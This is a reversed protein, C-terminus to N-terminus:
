MSRFSNSMTVGRIAPYQLWENRLNDIKTQLERDRIDITIVGEKDYGLDKHRMFQLQQYIVISGIILVISAFYQMIVLSRQLTSSSLKSAGATGPVGKLVEVPRLSSMILAPYSGAFIGVILVLAFLGPLLWTNSLFSLEIPREMVDGFVPLLLYTLAIALVFSVLAIM